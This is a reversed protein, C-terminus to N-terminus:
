KIFSSITVLLSVFGIIVIILSTVSLFNNLFRLNGYVSTVLSNIPDFNINM